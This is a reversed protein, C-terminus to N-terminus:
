RSGIFIKGCRDCQVRTKGPATYYFETNLAACEPCKWEVQLPKIIRMRVTERKM